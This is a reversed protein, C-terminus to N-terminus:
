EVKCQFHLTKPRQPCERRTKARLPLQLQSTRTKQSPTWLLKATRQLVNRLMCKRTKKPDTEKTDAKEKHDIILDKPKIFIAIKPDNPVPFYYDDDNENKSAGTTGGMTYKKTSTQNFGKTHASLGAGLGRTPGTM